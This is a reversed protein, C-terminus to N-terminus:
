YKKYEMGDPPKVEVPKSGIENWNTSLVTGGSEQFSKIMARKTEENGDAYIKQFLQNLAADGEPKEEEEAKVVDQEVKDWDVPDRQHSSPYVRQSSAADEKRELSEWQGATAKALKIEVKTKMIKFSCRETDVPNSLVMDLCYTTSDPLKISAVLNQTGFTVEVDGPAAGKAFITVTVFQDTQFHEHRVVM